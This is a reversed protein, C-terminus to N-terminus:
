FVVLLKKLEHSAVNKKVLNELTPRLCQQEVYDIEENFILQNSGKWVAFQIPVM